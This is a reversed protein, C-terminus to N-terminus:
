PDPKIETVKTGELGLGAMLGKQSFFFAYMDSKLTSTSLQSAVGADVVTLTPGVGFEWGRSKKLYEIASDTVLFLAYGMSQVGAQLGYSVATTNYYGTTKGGERLAGNGYEAGIIFGAKVIEPFVLVGKLPTNSPFLLTM